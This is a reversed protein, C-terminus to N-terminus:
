GLDCAGVSVAVPSVSPSNDVADGCSESGASRSQALVRLVHIGGAGSRRHLEEEAVPRQLM